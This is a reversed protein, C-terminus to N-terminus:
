GAKGSRRAAAPYWGLGAVGAVVLATWVDRDM